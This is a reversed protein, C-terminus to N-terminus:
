DTQCTTHSPPPVSLGSTILQSVRPLEGDRHQFMGMLEEASNTRNLKLRKNIHLNGCLGFLDQSFVLVAGAFSAAQLPAVLSNNKGTFPCWTANASVSRLLHVKILRARHMRHSKCSGSAQCVKHGNPFSLATQSDEGIGSKRRNFSRRDWLSHSSVTTFLVDQILIEWLCKLGWKGDVWVLIILRCQTLM